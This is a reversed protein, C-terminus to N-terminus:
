KKIMFVFSRKNQKFYARDLVCMMWDWLNQRWMQWQHVPVQSPMAGYTRFTHTLTFLCMSFLFHNKIALIVNVLKPLWTLAWALAYCLSRKQSKVRNSRCISLCRQEEKIAPTKTAKGWLDEIMEVGEVDDINKRENYWWEYQHCIEKSVCQSPVM